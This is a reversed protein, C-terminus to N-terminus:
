QFSRLPLKGKYIKYNNKLLIQKVKKAEKDSGKRVGHDVIIGEFKVKREQSYLKSLYVLALSDSGGSVGIVFKKAKLHKDLFKKYNPYINTLQNDLLQASTNKRKM